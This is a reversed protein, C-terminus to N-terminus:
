HLAHDPATDDQPASRPCPAIDQQPPQPTARARDVVCMEGACVRKCVSRGSREAQM